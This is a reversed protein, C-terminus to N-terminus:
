CEWRLAIGGEKILRMKGYSGQEKVLLILTQVGTKICM